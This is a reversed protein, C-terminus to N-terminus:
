MINAELIEAGHDREQSHGNVGRYAFQCLDLVEDLHLGPWHLALGQQGSGVYWAMQVDQLGDALPWDGMTQGVAPLHQELLESVAASTPFAATGGPHAAVLLVAAEELDLDDWYPRTSRM